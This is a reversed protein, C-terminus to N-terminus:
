NTEPPLYAFLCNYGRSTVDAAPTGASVKVLLRNDASGEPIAVRDISLDKAETEKASYTAADIPTGDGNLVEASLERVGSGNRQAECIVSFTWGAEVDDLPVAYIDVDATDGDAIRGEIAYSVGGGGNPFSVLGAEPTEVVGNTEEEAELPDSSTRNHMLVYFDNKGVEGAPRKVFVFYEQGAEVPLAIDGGKSPNVKAYANTLDTSAFVAIESVDVTSGNGEIGTPMGVSLQALIANDVAPTEPPTFSYVDVDTASAFNGFAFTTFYGSEDNNLEYQLQVAQESDDNPETDGILSDTESKAPDLPLLWLSYDFSVIDAPDACGGPFLANCEQVAIFYEGDAPLVTVLESDNSFGPSPDDNQAIQNGEADLLTIVTDPYTPDTEDDSPKADTQIYVAQGKTGTFSYYDADIDPPELTGEIGNAGPEIPEAEDVSDNGDDVEGSGTSTSGAVAGTTASSTTTSGAGGEGGGGGGEDDGGCGAATAAITGLVFFGLFYMSKM